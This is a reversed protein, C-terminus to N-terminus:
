ADKAKRANDLGPFCLVYDSPVGCATILSNDLALRTEPRALSLQYRETLIRHSAFAIAEDRATDVDVASRREDLFIAAGASADPEFARWVDWTTASLHYLNRAHITPAPFDLRVADLAADNWVRVMSAAAGPSCQGGEAVASGSGGSSCATAGVALAFSAMLVSGRARRM